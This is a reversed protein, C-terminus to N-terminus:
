WIYCVYIRKEPGQHGIKMGMTM